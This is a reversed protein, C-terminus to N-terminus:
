LEEGLSFHQEDSRTFARIQGHQSNPPLTRAAHRDLLAGLAHSSRALALRYAQVTPKANGNVVVAPPQVDIPNREFDREGWGFLVAALCAAALAGALAPSWPLRRQATHPEALREAIRRGLEPSVRRPRLSKLEAELPDFPENM